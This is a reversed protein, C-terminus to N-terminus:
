QNPISEITTRFARPLEIVEIQQDWYPEREGWTFVEDAIHSRKLLLKLSPQVEVAVRRAKERILRIYRIFQITDGLGHLCRVLVNRGDFPRGDWFRNPDPKARATITDSEQWALEFDGSLMHCTWRGGACVDPDQGAQEALNFLQLAERVRVCRLQEEAQQFLQEATVM